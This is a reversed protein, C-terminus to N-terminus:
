GLAQRLDAILVDTDEVGVALRILGPSVTGGEEEESFDLEYPIEILSEVGGLSTAISIEKLSDVFRRAAEFGGDMEFSVVGGGGSMQRRAVEEYQSGPLFPYHVPQIGPRGQLFEAIQQASSSQQDVRMAFTKLSRLLLWAARPDMIGGAMFQVGYIRDMLDRGGAAVGCMIDSHGGLYKTGSQLSLSAGHELPRQLHSSAFTSDVFLEAGADRAIESLALIDVIKLHPNSPTEIYVLDTDSKMAAAVIAPDTADVFTTDIGLGRGLTDLFGYTQAFIDAQAVVHSGSKLVALLSATIAGMGSDFMLAAEAGELRAIESAAAQVTPHGFRSYVNGAREKFAQGLEESSNFKFTTSQLLAPSIPQWERTTGM